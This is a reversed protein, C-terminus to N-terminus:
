LNSKSSLSLKILDKESYRSLRSFSFDIKDKLKISNLSL